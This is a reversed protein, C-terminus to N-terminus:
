EMAHFRNLSSQFQADILTSFTKMANSNCGHLKQLAHDILSDAEAKYNRGTQREIAAVEEVFSSGWKDKLLVIVGVLNKDYLVGNAYCKSYYSDMAMATFLMQGAIEGMLEIKSAQSQVLPSALVLVLCLIVLKNPVM